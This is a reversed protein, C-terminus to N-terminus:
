AWTIPEGFAVVIGAVLGVAAVALLFIRVRQYEFRESIAAFFLVVAFLLTSMTFVDSNTNAEEGSRFLTQAREELTAAKVDGAPAYEPMALPSPPAEPNNFPDLAMWADFAVEFEPRFRERYFTALQEDGSISADVYNEFIGLDALRYQNAETRSQTAETRAASAQTYDSSQIGDWLSAQYGTWATALAAFALLFTAFVEFRKERTSVPPTEEEAAPEDLDGRDDTV